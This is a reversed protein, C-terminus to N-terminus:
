QSLDFDYCFCQFGDIPYFFLFSLKKHNQYLDHYLFRHDCKNLGIINYNAQKNKHLAVQPIAATHTCHKKELRGVHTEHLCSSMLEVSFNAGLM